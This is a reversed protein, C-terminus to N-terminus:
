PSCTCGEDAQICSPCGAAARHPVRLCARAWPESPARTRPDIRKRKRARPRLPAARVAEGAEGRQGGRWLAHLSQLARAKRADRAGRGGRGRRETGGGSRGAAAAACAAPRAGRTARRLARSACVGDNCRLREPRRLPGPKRVPTPLAACPGFEQCASVSQRASKKAKRTTAAAAPSCAKYLYIGKHSDAPPASRSAHRSQASVFAAPEASPSLPPPPCPRPPRPWHLAAHTAAAEWRSGELGGAGSPATVSKQRAPAKRASSPSPSAGPRGCASQSTRPSSGCARPACRTASRGAATVTECRSATAKSRTM